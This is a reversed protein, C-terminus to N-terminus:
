RRSLCPPGLGSSLDQQPSHDGMGVAHRAEPDESMNSVGPTSGM